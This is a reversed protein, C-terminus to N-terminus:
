PRRAVGLIHPVPPELRSPAFPFRRCREIEFGATAIGKATDRTPHCGGAIRPWITTRDLFELFSRLPQRRAHVHEYFRLEGGPRLVRHAEALARGQDPVTCLVLCAVVADFSGNEYQLDDAIGEVVQVSAPARVAAQQARKRLYPEPEVAVVDAVETSYHEFNAGTGAGIELVRGRLGSLLERRYGIQAPPENSTMRTYLRAFVPNRVAAMVDSM